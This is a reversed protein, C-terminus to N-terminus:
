QYRLMLRSEFGCRMTPLSLGTVAARVVEDTEHSLTYAFFRRQFNTGAITWEAVTNLQGLVPLIRVKSLTFFEISLWYRDAWVWQTIRNNFVPASLFNCMPLGEGTAWHLGAVMLKPTATQLRVMTLRYGVCTPGCRNKSTSNQCLCFLRNPIKGSSGVECPQAPTSGAVERNLM